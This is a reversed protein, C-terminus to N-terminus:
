GRQSHKGNEDHNLSGTTGYQFLKEDNNIPNISTKKAKIRDASDICSGSCILNVKRCKYYLLIVCDSAFDSGNM